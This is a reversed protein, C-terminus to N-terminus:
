SAKTNLEAIRQRWEPALSDLIVEVSKVSVVSAPGGISADIIEEAAQTTLVWAVGDVAAELREVYGCLLRLLMSLEPESERGALLHRAKATLELANM